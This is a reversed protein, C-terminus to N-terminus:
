DDKGAHLLVYDTISGDDNYVTPILWYLLPDQRVEVERGALHVRTSCSPNLEGDPTFDGQYYALYTTPDDAEMGAVFENQTLLRHVVCYVKVGTVAQEPDSPHPNTRALHRVISALLAKGEPTPPQYEQALDDGPEPMPPDFQTCARRRAVLMEESLDASPDLRVIPMLQLMRLDTLSGRSDPDPLHVWTREGDAYTLQAWLLTEPAAEPSYFHYSTTMYVFELYPRYFRAELQSAIWLPETDPPPHSLTVAAIGGFHLLVLLSLALRQLQPSLALLGAGVLAVVAGVYFVLRVSDWLPDVAHAALLPLLAATLMLKPTPWRVTIALAGTLLGVALLLSVVTGSESVSALGWAAATATMAVLLFLWPRAWRAARQDDQLAIVNTM